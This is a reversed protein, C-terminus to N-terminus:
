SCIYYMNVGQILSRGGQLTTMLLDTVRSVFQRKGSWPGYIDTRELRPTRKPWEQINETRYLSDKMLSVDM